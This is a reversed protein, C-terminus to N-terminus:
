GPREMYRSGPSAPEDSPRAADRFGLKMYLSIAPTNETDVNLSLCEFPGKEAEQVLAQVLVEGYGKRRFAPAVILRALHARSGKPVLQGFAMLRDCEDTLTFANNEAFSISAPLSEIDIPFRVRWGAWLECDRATAIWSAVVRLDM